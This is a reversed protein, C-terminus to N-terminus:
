FCVCKDYTFVFVIFACDVVIVSLSLTVSGRGGHLRQSCVRLCTCYCTVAMYMCMPAWINWVSRLLDLLRLNQMNSTASYNFLPRFGFLQTRVMISLITSFFGSVVARQGHVVGARYM